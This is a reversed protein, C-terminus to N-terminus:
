DEQKTEISQTHSNKALQFHQILANLMNAQASLEEATAASEESTASNTQVVASIQEVGLTIQAISNAQQESAESIQAISKVVGNAQEAVQEFAEFAKQAIGEGRAVAQVSNEILDTTEKAAEASKAALNRVEDAVVAFGKGAVGARAAEVAANLALINTQFAIDEIVKIVKSINVSTDSIERMSSLMERMEVLTKEISVGAASAFGNVEQANQFNTKIQESVENLSASLEEISSAQETAGQALAQAGSSVQDAEMQIQASGLQINYFSDNLQDIFHGIVVEIKRMEGPFTMAPYIQLNGTSLAQMSQTIDEIVHQLTKTMEYFSRSLAGIEDQSQLAKPINFDGQKIKEASTVIGDIPKLAKRILIASVVCLLILIVLCLVTLILTLSVIDQKMNNETLFSTAWWTQTGCHVPYFYQMSKGVTTNVSISFPTKNAQKAVIDAYDDKDLIFTDMPVGAEGGEPDSDYVTKNDQTYIVTYLAEYEDGDYKLREFSSLLIDVVVVGIVEGEKLIPYCVSSSTVGDYTLPETIYPAKTEKAVKYYPENSYTSYVGQGQLQFSQNGATSADVYFAYDAVNADFQYPEFFVGAGAIDAQEAVTTWFTHLMYDERAKSISSINVPFVASPKTQIREVLSQSAEQAFSREFYKTIEKAVKETEDMLNQVVIGNTKARETLEADISEFLYKQTQMATISLLIGFAILIGIGLFISLKVSLKQTKYQKVKM